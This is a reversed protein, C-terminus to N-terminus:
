TCPTEKQGEPTLTDAHADLSDAMIRLKLAKERLMKAVQRSERRLLADRIKQEMSDM